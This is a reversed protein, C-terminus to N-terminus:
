LHKNNINNINSINEQIYIKFLLSLVEIPSFSPFALFAWGKLPYYIM